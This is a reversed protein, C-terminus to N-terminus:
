RECCRRSRSQITGCGAATSSTSGQRSRWAGHADPPEFDYIAADDLPTSRAASTRKRNLRRRGSSTATCAVRRADRPQRAPGRPARGPARGSRLLLEGQTIDEGRRRINDGPRLMRNLVLHDGDRWGHEQMLVADASAPSRRARSSALRPGTRSRAPRIARPSAARLPLRAGAPMMGGGLAVAYGDMASQDFAPMRWRRSSRKPSRAVLPRASPVEDVASIPMAYRAAGRLGRRHHDPRVKLASTPFRPCPREHHAERLSLTRAALRGAFDPPFTLRASYEKSKFSLGKVAEPADALKRVNAWTQKYNPIIFENVGPSVVNGQVGMPYAFLMFTQKRKARTPRTPWRRRRATTTSCRSSTARAQHQAGGHGAPEDRHVPVPYRDMVFENQQDLYASQWVHNTRGNNVLFPFKKSEEEKGPAQLGRWKTEMFVAKGDKTNFKGDAYLRKTGIIRESGGATPVPAAAASPARRSCRSRAARAEIAPGQVVMGPQQGTTTGGPSSGAGSLGARSASPPSRSATPAWRVCGPM